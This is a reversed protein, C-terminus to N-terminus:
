WFFILGEGLVSSFPNAFFHLFDGDDTAAARVVKHAMSYSVRVRNSFLVLEGVVLERIADIISMTEFFDEAEGNIAKVIEFSNSEVVLPPRFKRGEQDILERYDKSGELIAKGELNKM